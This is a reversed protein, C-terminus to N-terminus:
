ACWRIVYNWKPLNHDAIIHKAALDAFDPNIDRSVYVYDNIESIVKLGTKTTVKNALNMACEASTLQRGSWGLSIQSFLRHEIPNYKSCYPPYHVVRINMHIMRALEILRQKFIRHRCSNSGGGDCLIVITDADPYYKKIYLTWYHFLNDRVFEATDKSTGITLYGINMNLDYIGHPIIVGDSFTGFDHDLAKRFTRSYLAGKRYFQGVLEKAKTDISFIPSHTALCEKRIDEIKRFQDDRHEVEALELNKQLSRKRYGRVSLMQCVLYRSVTIGRAEFEERIERNSIGVSVVKDDQPLGAIKYEVVQDFLM